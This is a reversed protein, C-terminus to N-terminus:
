GSFGSCRASHEKRVAGLAGIAARYMEGRNMTEDILHQKPKLQGKWKLVVSQRSPFGLGLYIGRRGDASSICWPTIKGVLSSGM